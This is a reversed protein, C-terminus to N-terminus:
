PRIVNTGQPPTWRFRDLAPNTNVRVSGAVFQFRNRNNQADIVGAEVVQYNQPEVFLVLRAFSPNPTIPTLEVMYFNEYGRTTSPRLRANFDAALNGTGMLFSLASPLQSQSLNAMFAQRNAPEYTWLTTGDSVVLNGRPQSYEWRMRGPRRFQVHGASETTTNSVATTNFQRFDAEFDSTRNYFGQVGAVVQAATLARNVTPSGPPVPVSPAAADRAAVAGADSRAVGADAVPRPAGADARPRTQASRQTRTPRALAVVPVSLVLSLAIARHATDKLKM